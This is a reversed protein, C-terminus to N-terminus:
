TTAAAAAAAAMFLVSGWVMDRIAFDLPYKVLTAYNTMDYVGYTCFGLLAGRRAAQTWDKSPEVAFVWVACIMVIYVLIAAIWRIQLPQGQLRAFVTRSESATFSLWLTDLVLMVLTITAIPYASDM